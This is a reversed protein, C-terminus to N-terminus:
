GGFVLLYALLFGVIVGAISLFLVYRVNHGTVGQRTKNTQSSDEENEAVSPTNPRIDPRLEPTM